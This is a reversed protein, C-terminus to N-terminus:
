RIIGSTIAGAPNSVMLFLGLATPVFNYLFHAVISTTTNYRRRLWGLGLGVILILVSAPTLVYQSHIAAFLIATPWLGLIPQLAGRFAIEEGIAASASLVFVFMLTNINAEIKQVVVTQQEITQQTVSEEWIIDIFRATVVLMFAIAVGMTLESITPARLGLRWLTLTISRRFGLGVGLAAFILWTSLDIALGGVTIPMSNDAIGALGGLLVFELITNAVLYACLILATMHMMSNPDFGVLAGTGTDLERSAFIAAIRKRVGTFLLV